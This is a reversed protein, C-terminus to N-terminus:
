AAKAWLAALDRRVDELVLAPIKRAAPLLSEHQPVRAGPHHVLRTFVLDGGFGFGGAVGFALVKKLNPKILHPRIRGGTEQLGALGKATLTVSISDGSTTVPATIIKWAGADNRGFIRRGIGHRVFEKVGAARADAARNEIARALIRNVDAGGFRDIAARVAADNMTIEISIM